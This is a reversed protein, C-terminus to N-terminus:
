RHDSESCSNCSSRPQNHCLYLIIYLLYYLVFNNYVVNYHTYLLRAIRDLPVCRCLRFQQNLFNNSNFVNLQVIIVIVDNIVDCNLQSLSLSLSLSLSPSSVFYECDLTSSLHFILTYVIVVIELLMSFILAFSHVMNFKTNWISGYLM